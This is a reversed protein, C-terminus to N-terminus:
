KNKKGDEFGKKVCPDDADFTGFGLQDQYERISRELSIGGRLMSWTEMENGFKYQESKNSMCEEKTVSSCSVVLISLFSIFVLTSFIKKM